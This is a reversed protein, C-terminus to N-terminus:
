EGRRRLIFEAYDVDERTTIKINQKGTDVPYIRQGLQEVMMNDDTFLEVNKMKGALHLAEDYMEREFVQPTQVCVLRNRDLTGIIFGDDDKGKITDTIATSATAAGHVFAMKVVSEIQEPTILCRAADHIAIYNADYSTSYFGIAASQARNVGGPAIVCVKDFDNLQDAVWEIEDKRCVVVIEDIISCDSFAKVTRFIVSQGLLDIKQKSIDDGMRTSNGAALIIASVYNNLNDM